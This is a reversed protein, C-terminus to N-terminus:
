KIKLLKIAIQYGLDKLLKVEHNVKFPSKICLYYMLLHEILYNYSIIKRAHTSSILYAKKHYRKSIKHKYPKRNICYPCTTINVHERRVHTRLASLSFTKYNNCYPCKFM